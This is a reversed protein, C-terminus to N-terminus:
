FIFDFSQPFLVFRGRLCLSVSFFVPIPPAPSEPCTVSIPFAFSGHLRSSCSWPSTRIRLQNANPSASFYRGTNQNRTSPIQYKTNPEQCANRGEASRVTFVFFLPPFQAPNSGQFVRFFPNSRDTVARDFQPQAKTKLLASHPTPDRASPRLCLSAFLDPSRPCRTIGHDYFWSVASVRLVPSSRRFRRVDCTMAPIPLAFACRPSASVRLVSWSRLIPVDSCRSM